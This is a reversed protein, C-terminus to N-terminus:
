LMFMMAQSTVSAEKYEKLWDEIGHRISVTDSICGTLAHAPLLEPIISQLKKQLILLTLSM